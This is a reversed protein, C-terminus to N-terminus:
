SSKYPVLKLLKNIMKNTPVLITNNELDFETVSKINNALLILFWIETTDYIKYSLKKPNLKYIRCEADSLEITNYSAYQDFLESLTMDSLRNLKMTNIDWSDAFATAYDELNYINESQNIL